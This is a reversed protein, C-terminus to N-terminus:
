ENDNYLQQEQPQDVQLLTCLSSLQELETGSVERELQLTRQILQYNKYCLATAMVVCITHATIHRQAKDWSTEVIAIDLSLDAGSCHKSFFSNCSFGTVESPQCLVNM